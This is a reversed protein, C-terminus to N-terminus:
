ENIPPEPEPFIEKYPEWDIADKRQWGAQLCQNIYAFAQVYFSNLEEVTTFTHYVAAGEEDEGMKFTIPLVAEPMKEAMRQAESFNTQNEKSLYVSIEEPEGGVSPRTWVFGNLIKDDTDADIDGWIGDHVDKYSMNPHQKKYYYVEHWTAHTEDVSEMGYGITYRGGDEKFYAFETKLGYVKNM